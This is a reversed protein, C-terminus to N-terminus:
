PTLVRLVSTCEGTPLTRMASSYADDRLPGIDIAGLWNPM